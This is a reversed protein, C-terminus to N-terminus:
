TPRKRKPKPKEPARELRIVPLIIISAEHKDDGPGPIRIRDAHPGEWFPIVEAPM